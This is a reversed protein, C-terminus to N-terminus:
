RILALITDSLALRRSCELSSERGQLEGATSRTAINLTATYGLGSAELFVQMSTTSSTVGVLEFSAAGEGSAEPGVVALNPRPSKEVGHDQLFQQAVAILISETM